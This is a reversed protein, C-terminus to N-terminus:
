FVFRISLGIGDFKVGPDPSLEIMPKWDLSINLPADPVKFDLGVVGDLSLAVSTNDEVKDTYFGLGGGAGYYWLLGQYDLVAIKNHIEYLGLVKFIGYDRNGQFNVIGDIAHGGPTMFYKYSIGNAVGFRGGIAQKYYESPTQASATLSALALVSCVIATKFAKITRNM